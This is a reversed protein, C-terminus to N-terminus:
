CLSNARPKCRLSLSIHADFTLKTIFGDHSDVVADIGVVIGDVITVVVVFLKANSGVTLEHYACM